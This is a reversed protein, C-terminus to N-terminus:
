KKHQKTDIVDFFVIIWCVMLLQNTASVRLVNFEFILYPIFGFLICLSWSKIPPVSKLAGLTNQLLWGFSKKALPHLLALLVGFTGLIGIEMLLASYFINSPQFSVGRDAFGFGKGIIPSELFMNWMKVMSSVRGGSINDLDGWIRFYNEIMPIDFLKIVSIVLIFLGITILLSLKNNMAFISFATIAVIYLILAARTGSNFLVWSGAVFLLISLAIKLNSKSWFIFCFATISTLAADLGFGNASSNLFYWREPSYNKHLSNEFIIGWDQPGFFHLLLSALVPFAFPISFLIVALKQSKNNFDYIINATFIACSSIVLVIILLRWNWLTTNSLVSGLFFLALSIALVKNRFLLILRLRDGKLFLIVGALITAIFFYYQGNNLSYTEGTPETYVYDLGIHPSWAILILAIWIISNNFSQNVSLKISM